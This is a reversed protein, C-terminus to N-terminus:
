ARAEDLWKLHMRGHDASAALAAAVTGDGFPSGAIKADLQDQTLGGALALTEARAAQGLAVAQHFSHGRHALVFEENTRNLNAMIEDRGRRAGDDGFIPGMPKPHGAAYRRVIEALTQEFHAVHVMHDQASWMASPDHESRTVPRIREAEDLAAFAEILDARGRNLQIEIDHHQV